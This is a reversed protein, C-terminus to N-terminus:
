TLEGAETYRPVDAPTEEAGGTGLVSRLIGADKQIDGPAYHKRTTEWSAHRMVRCIVLPPVGADRLREGCSRRLDHASAYKIPRGTREDAQEVIVGAKKGIRSIVKGVWEADPRTHRVKRGVRTQLSKPRFVWGTREAEPTELLVAELWPLLPIEEDTDNKQMAAPIDLLPLRGRRWVPRISNPNDWSLNMLEELRLASSWLGRLLYKWSAAADAGVVAKTKALMREFEEATIPRGKMSKRKATKVKRIRPVSAIWGQLHAWNLAAFVAGMYGRVTFSSRPKKRRSERGALLASQLRHLAEGSAVDGLTRPKLIREAIDLRSEAHTASADRLTDLQLRTYQERFDSWPMGPGTQKAKPKAELGLRL